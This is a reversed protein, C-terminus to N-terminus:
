TSVGQIIPVDFNIVGQFQKFIVSADIIRRTYKAAVRRRNAGKIGKKPIRQLVLEMVADPHHKAMRRLKTNTPGDHWGKCEQWITQGFEVIKFDPKYQVPATKEGEFYFIKPEYEWSVMTGASRLFELYLAWRYELKSRFYCEQGGITARVRTNNFERAIRRKPEFGLKM